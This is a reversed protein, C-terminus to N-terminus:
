GPGPPAPGPRIRGHRQGWFTNGTPTRWSSWGDSTLAMAWGTRHAVGHHRRCVAVLNEVATVGGREHHEVHHNDTWAIPADCGPFCCGGDRSAVARRQATTAFRVHRGLDLPVGLSDVVVAYLDPDCCLTRTTGDQLRAGTAANPAGHPEDARVVITVEPRAPKTSTLDVAGAQRVLDALALARLTPRSPIDIDPCHDHDASFRRFLDDARTEIAERVGLAHEGILQGSVHTLGDLTEAVSLKNAGLDDAPDHGGDQDILEIMSRVDARWTEFLAGDALNVIEDQLHTVTDAVRPNCATALAAVHHASVAGHIHTWTGKSV